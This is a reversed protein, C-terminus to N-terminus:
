SQGEKKAGVARQAILRPLGSKAERRAEEAWKRRNEIKRSDSGGHAYWHHGNWKKNAEFWDHDHKEIKAALRDGFLKTFAVTDADLNRSAVMPGPLGTLMMADALFQRLKSYDEDSPHFDRDWFIYHIARAQVGLGAFTEPRISMVQDIIVELPVTVREWEDDGIEPPFRKEIQRRLAFYRQADPSSEGGFARALSQARYKIDDEASVGTAKRVAAEIAAHREASRRKMEIWAALLAELEVSLRMLERDAAKIKALTAKQLKQKTSNSDTM